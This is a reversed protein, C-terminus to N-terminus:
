GFLKAATKFDEAAVRNRQEFDVEGRSDRDTWYRGQLRTAPRGSAILSGAGRHARSRDEVSPDPNGTFIYEFSTVGDSISVKALSSRSRAEDTLLVVSATTATQRVVLFATKPPPHKDTRPDIWLSTLTGKWTGGLDLPVGRGLRQIPSFRWLWRDWAGLVVTAVLVALSFFKLWGVQVDDGGAWIGAAFVLVVVGAVIQIAKRNM